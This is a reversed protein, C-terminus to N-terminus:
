KTTTEKKKSAAKRKSKAYSKNLITDLSDEYSREVVPSQTSPEIRIQDDTIDSVINPKSPTYNSNLNVDLKQYPIEINRKKFEVFVDERLQYLADWYQGNTTYCKIAFDISSSSLNELVITIPMEKNVLPQKNIVYKLIKKIEAPKSDYSVGVVLNIRRNELTNYNTISGSTLLSNPVFVSLNNFTVLETTLLNVEKVTGETTTSVSIYDGVVIKHTSIVIIGSAFNSIVNQLSLGIAVVAASIITTLGTVNVGLIDLVIIVVIIGLIARLVSIGFLRATKKAPDKAPNKARKTLLRLIIKNLYFLFLFVIIAIVIQQAVVSASSGGDVTEPTLLLLFREWLEIFWNGVDSWTLLM